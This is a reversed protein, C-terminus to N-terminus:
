LAAAHNGHASKEGTTKPLQHTEYFETVRRDAEHFAARARKLQELASDFDQAEFFDIVTGIVSVARYAAMDRLEMLRAFHAASDPM